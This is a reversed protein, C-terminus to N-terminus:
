KKDAALFSEGFAQIPPEKPLLGRVGMDRM